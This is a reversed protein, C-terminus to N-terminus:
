GGAAPLSLVSGIVTELEGDSLADLLDNHGVFPVALSALLYAWALGAAARLLRRATTRASAM